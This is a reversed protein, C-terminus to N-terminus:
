TGPMLCTLVGAWPDTLACSLRGLVQRPRAAAVPAVARHAARDARSLRARGTRRRRPAGPRPSPAAGPAWAGGGLAPPTAPRVRLLRDPGRSSSRAERAPM